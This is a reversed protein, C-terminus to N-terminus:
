KESRLEFSLHIKDPEENKISATWDGTLVDQAAVNFGAVLVIFALSFFARMLIRINEVLSCRGSYPNLKHKLFSVGRLPPEHCFVELVNM